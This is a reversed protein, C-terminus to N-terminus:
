RLILRWAAVALTIVAVGAFCWGSVEIAACEHWDAGGVGLRPIQVPVGNHPERGPAVDRQALQYKAVPRQMAENAAAAKIEQM